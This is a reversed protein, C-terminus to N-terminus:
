TWLNSMNLIEVAQQYGARMFRDLYILISVLFLRHRCVSPKAAPRSPGGNACVTVEEGEGEQDRGQTAWNLCNELSCRLHKLRWRLAGERGLESLVEAGPQKNPSLNTEYMLITFHCSRILVPELTDRQINQGM